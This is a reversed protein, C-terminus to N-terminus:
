KKLVAHHQYNGLNMKELLKLFQVNNRMNKFFHDYKVKYIDGNKRKYAVELWEITKDTENLFAFKQAIWYANHWVNEAEPNNIDLDNIWKFVGDIGGSKFAELMPAVNIKNIPHLSWTDAVENVAKENQGKEVYVLFAIWSAWGDTPNIEKAKNVEQLAMDYDGELLYCEASYIKIYYSLPAILSARNINERAKVFDGKIYMLYKAYTILAGPNKSDIELAKIFEKEALEWNWKYEKYIIGLVRHTEALGDDLERAKVAYDMSELYDEESPAPWNKYINLLALGSYPLAFEPDLAISEEFYKEALAFSQNSFQYLFYDGKLYLNYAELNTTPIKEIQELESPSLVLNLEKAIDTSIERELHFIDEFERDFDKSWLHTDNRANILHVIIKIRDEYKQVSGDIIYNVGLAEGIESGSLISSGYRDSSQRSKVLINKIKALHNIIDDRMGDAFYQNDESPSLNKFPLVAISNDIDIPSESKTIEDEKPNDYVFYFLAAIIVLVGLLLAIVNNKIGRKKVTPIRNEINGSALKQSTDNVNLESKDKTATRYKVEGPPYGYYESFRTNFYTPSSFGVRYAIESATAVNNQLMIMAKELRYERIFQSSSKGTLSTLKRHLQSRSVGLDESLENVGFQENALNTEILDKVKRIFEDDISLQNSM